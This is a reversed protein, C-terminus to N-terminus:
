VTDVALSLFGEPKEFQLSASGSALAQGSNIVSQTLATIFQSIAIGTDTGSASMFAYQPNTAVRQVVVGDARGIGFALINPRASIGLLQAHAAEWGDGHNPAGDTLFFVAPRNVLYGENKLHAIDSPIQQMLAEFAARFSTTGRATLTPMVELYRLDTPPLHCRAGDSFGIVCFRVKSAAMSESQLTDLLSLLGANLDGVNRAMSSSEDAVFYM